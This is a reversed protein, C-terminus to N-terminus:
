SDQPKLFASSALGINMVLRQVYDALLRLTVLISCTLLNLEHETYTWYIDLLHGTSTWYIDLLVGFLYRIYVSCIASLSLLLMSDINLSLYIVVSFHQVLGVIVMPLFACLLFLPYQILRGM